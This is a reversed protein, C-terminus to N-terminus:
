NSKGVKVSDLKAEAMQSNVESLFVEFDTLCSNINNTIVESYKSFTDSRNDVSNREEVVCELINLKAEYSFCNGKMELIKDESFLNELHEEIIPTLGDVM